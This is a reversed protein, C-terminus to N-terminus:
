FNTQIEREKLTFGFGHKDHMDTAHIRTRHFFVHM